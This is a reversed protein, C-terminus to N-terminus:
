TAAPRRDRGAVPSRATDDGSSVLGSVIGLSSIAIHLVNDASNVPILGLVDSGDAIGIITVLLYVVGFAVAGAKASARKPSLALLLVGSAVHVLNHIGNVEFIGILKSGNLNSGTDFTSDFAFGLLGAVLLTAGFVLCYWQAPTREDERVGPTGDRVDRAGAARAGTATRDAM